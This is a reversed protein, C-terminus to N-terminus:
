KLNKLWKVDEIFDNLNEKSNKNTEIAINKDLNIIAFVKKVDYNGQGFHFHKDFESDIFNDSLHYCTPNLENFQALFEYPEIKLTNATCIAHGVDLCFGCGVENVVQYIEEITAGRCIKNDRLPAIFPKNEILMKDLNITKLQRITEDIQGEIGSHVVVYESNLEERFKDVDQFVKYNFDKKDPNALNVEHIFHPAHLTFPINLESKLTKWKKITELTSPVVYLEIYDFWGEAYLRKAEEFYFDTNISWLKLGLKM